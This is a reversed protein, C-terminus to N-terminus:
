TPFTEEKSNQLCKEVKRKKPKDNGRKLYLCIFTLIYVHIYPTGILGQTKLRVQVGVKLRIKTIHTNRPNYPTLWSINQSGLGCEKTRSHQNSKM